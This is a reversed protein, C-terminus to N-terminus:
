REECSAASMCNSSDMESPLMGTLVASVKALGFRTHRRVVVERGRASWSSPWSTSSGCFPVVNSRLLVTLLLFLRLYRMWAMSAM